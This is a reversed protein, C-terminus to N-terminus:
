QDDKWTIDVTTLHDGDHGRVLDCELETEPHVALCRPASTATM